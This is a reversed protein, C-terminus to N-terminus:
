FMKIAIIIFLIVAYKIFRLTEARFYSYKEKNHTYKALNSEGLCFFAFGVIVSVFFFNGGAIDIAINCVIGIASIGIVIGGIVYPVSYKYYYLYLKNIGRFFVNWVIYISTALFVGVVICDKPSMCEGGVERADRKAYKAVLHNAVM